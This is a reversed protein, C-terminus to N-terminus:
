RKHKGQRALEERIVDRLKDRDAKTLKKDDSAKRAASDSDSGSGSGSGVARKVGDVLNQAEKSGAIAKTHEWLTKDGLPVKAAFYGFGGLVLLTIALKILRM